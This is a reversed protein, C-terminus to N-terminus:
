GVVQRGVPVFCSRGGEILIFGFGAFKIWAGFDAGATSTAFCSTLPSKTVVVWRSTAQASTGALVGPLLMLKNDEGLPDVHPALEDYLYKSGFGRGGVFNMITQGDIPEITVQRTSLNM